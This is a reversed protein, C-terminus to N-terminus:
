FDTESIVNENKLVRYWTACTGEVGELCLKGKVRGWETRGGFEMLFPVKVQLVQSVTNAVRPRSLACARTPTGSEHSSHPLLAQPSNLSLSCRTLCCPNSGISAM